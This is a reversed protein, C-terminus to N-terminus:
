KDSNTLDTLKKTFIKRETTFFADLNSLKNKIEDLRLNGPAGRSNSELLVEKANFAPINNLNDKVYMYAKRFPIKQQQMIQYTWHAAYLEKPMHRKIQSENIQLSDVFLKTIELSTIVTKFSNVFGGKIEQLDRNYGSPLNALTSLVHMETAMMTHYRSRLLELADWNQKQPMISSGTGLNAAFSIFSFPETTFILSDTAFKNLTAMVQTLSHLILAEFKGKSNQCYLANNQVHAFGLYEATTDRNIPLAVGYGAGSGLPSQNNMQYAFQIVLLDDLLSEAIASLWLGVSSIMAPQMHTMGPMPILEYKKAQLVLSSILVSCASALQLLQDKSYLRLDTLVQDNRSRGTHLKAGALPTVATLENEIRTHVDEDGVELKLDGEHYRSLLTTLTAVIQALDSKSILNQQQLMKAHALSGYIDFAVLSQDVGLDDGSTYLEVQEALITKNQWLKKKM